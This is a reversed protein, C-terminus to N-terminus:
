IKSFDFLDVFEELMKDTIGKQTGSLLNITVYSNPLDAIVLAKNESLALSVKVGSKTTYEVGQSNADGINLYTDSFTGKCLKLSIAMQTGDKLVAEGDLSLATTTFM